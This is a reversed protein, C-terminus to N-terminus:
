NVVKLLEFQNTTFGDSIEYWFEKNSLKKIVWITKSGNYDVSLTKKGQNWVWYGSTSGTFSTFTVTGNKDMIVRNNILTSTVDVNNITAKQITYTGRIRTDYGKLSLFPGEPYKKLCGNLCLITLLSVGLLLLNNKSFM